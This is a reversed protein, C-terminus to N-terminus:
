RHTGRLFGHFGASPVAPRAFGSEEFYTIMDWPTTYTAAPDGREGAHAPIILAGRSAPQHA